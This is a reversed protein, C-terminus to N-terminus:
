MAQEMRGSLHIGGDCAGMRDLQPEDSKSECVMVYMEERDGYSAGM